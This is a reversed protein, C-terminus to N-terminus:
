TYHNIREYEKSIILVFIKKTTTVHSRNFPVYDYRTVVVNQYRGDNNHHGM